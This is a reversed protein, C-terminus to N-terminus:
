FSQASGAAKSRAGCGHSGEASPEETGRTREGRRVLFRPNSVTAELQSRTCGDLSRSCAARM